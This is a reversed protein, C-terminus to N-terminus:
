EMEAPNQTRSVERTLQSHCGEVMEPVNKFPYTEGHEVCTEYLAPYLQPLKSQDVAPFLHHLLHNGFTTMVVLMNEKKIDRNTDIQHLGWDTDKRPKDGSHWLSPHHHGGVVSTMILWYGATGHYIYFLTLAQLVPLQFLLFMLQAYPFINEKRWAQEGTM